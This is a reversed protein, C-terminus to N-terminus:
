QHEGFGVYGFPVMIGATFALMLFIDVLNKVQDTDLPVGQAAYALRVMSPVAFAIVAWTSVGILLVSLVNITVAKDRDSPRM